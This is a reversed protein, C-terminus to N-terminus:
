EIMLDWTLDIDSEGVTYDSTATKMDPQHKLVVRFTGEAAVGTTWQTELGVPLGNEDTDLYNIVEDDREDVNGNGEPDGFINNTFGFFFMHEAGEEEVEETINEQENGSIFMLSISMDYTTNALLEIDSVIELSAPGEGDPDQALAVVPTGGGVPTFTLTVDTIVEEENEAEPAEEDCATFLLTLLFASSLLKFFNKM